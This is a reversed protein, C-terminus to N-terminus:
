VSAVDAPTAQADGHRAHIWDALESAEHNSTLRFSIPQEPLGFWNPRKREKKRVTVFIKAKREDVRVSAVDEYRVRWKQRNKSAWARKSVDFHNDHLIVYNTVRYTVEALLGFAVGFLFMLGLVELDFGDFAMLVCVTVGLVAMM